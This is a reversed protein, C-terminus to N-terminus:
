EYRLADIPNLKAAKNAPYYGFFLGVMMSFGVALAVVGPSIVLNYKLYHCAVAAGTTGIIVGVIGGLMSVTIAEVVFQMRIAGNRAGLAKRVGIEHTRETVSVLMINMVGIGGVLLSIGAIVAIVISLTGLMDTATSMAAATNFVSPQFQANNKYYRNFFNETKTKLINTDVGNKAMVTFSAYNKNNSNAKLVNIPVYLTTSVDADSMATMLASQVYEYVGVIAYVQVENNVYVKIQKGLVADSSTGFILTAAKDSIVAIPTTRMLDSEQIFRGHLMEINSSQTIGENVGSVSITAYKHGDKIQGSGGSETLTITQIDDPYMDKFTELMDATFMDDNSPQRSAGGSGTSSTRSTSTATTSKARLSVQINNMGMNAFEDTVAGTMSQGVSVIAIVSSIGIIIGLM